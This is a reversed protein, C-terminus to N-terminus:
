TLGGDVTIVQGTIYDSKNSALFLVAGSVEEPTGFRKMAIGELMEEAVNEPLQQLMDTQIMGPCVANVYIHFRALERALSRTFGVVGAKSAAYNTQGARGIFASPSTMNIIKGYKQGIMLRAASKCCTYLGKVNVDMVRDWDDESMFMLLKDRLVGANNVLIDLRGPDTRIEGFMNEVDATDAVDARIARADGGATQIDSVTKQAAEENGAYNVIVQAGREALALSIARGIGRSGGTVLAVKDTFDFDMISQTLFVYLLLIARKTGITLPFHGSVSAPAGRSRWWMERTHHKHLYLTFSPLSSDRAMGPNM